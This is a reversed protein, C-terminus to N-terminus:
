TQSRMFPSLAQYDCVWKVWSARPQVKRVLREDATILDCGLQAALAVYAADYLACGLRQAIRLSDELCEDVSSYIFDWALLDSVAREVDQARLRGRQHAVYIANAVEYCMLDPVAIAVAGESFAARLAIAERSSDEDALYWKAIVSADAVLLRPDSMTVTHM